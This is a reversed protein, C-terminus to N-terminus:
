VQPDEHLSKALEASPWAGTQVRNRAPRGLETAVVTVAAPAKRARPLGSVVSRSADPATVPAASYAGTKVDAAVGAAPLVTWGRGAFVMAKQLHMSNTELIVHPELEVLSRAQDILARLGHGAVPLVL